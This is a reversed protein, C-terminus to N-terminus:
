SKQEEESVLGRVAEEEQPAEVEERHVEVVVAGEVEIALAAETVLAAEIVASAVQLINLRRRDTLHFDWLTYVV